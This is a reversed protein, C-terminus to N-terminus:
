ASARTRSPPTAIGRSRPAEYESPLNIWTLPSVRHTASCPRGTKPGSPRLCLVTPTIRSMWSRPLLAASLDARSCRSALERDRGARVREGPEGIAGEKVLADSLRDGLRMCLLPSSATNTISRSRNLSTLACARWRSRRGPAALPRVRAGLPEARLRSSRGTRCRRTRRARHGLRTARSTRSTRERANTRRDLYASRDQLSQGHIRPTLM